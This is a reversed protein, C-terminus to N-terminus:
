KRQIFARSLMLRHMQSLEYAVGVQRASLKFPEATVALARKM